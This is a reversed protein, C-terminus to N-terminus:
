SCKVFFFSLLNKYLYINVSFTAVYHSQLYEIRCGVYIVDVEVCMVVWKWLAYKIQIGVWCISMHCCVERCRVQQKTSLLFFIAFSTYRYIRFSSFFKRRYLSLFFGLSLWGYCAYMYIYLFFFISINFSLYIIRSVLDTPVTRKNNNNVSM